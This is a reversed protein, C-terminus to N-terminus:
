SPKHTSSNDMVVHVDLDTPANREVEDLFKRFDSARHRAMCKGVITGAKV